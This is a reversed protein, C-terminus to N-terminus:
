EWSGNRLVYLNVAYNGDAPPGTETYDVNETFQFPTTAALPRAAGCRDMGCVAGLQGLNTGNIRATGGLKVRYSQAPGAGSVTFKVVARSYGSLASIRHPSSTPAADGTTISDIVVTM